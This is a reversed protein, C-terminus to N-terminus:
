ICYWSSSVGDKKQSKVVPFVLPLLLVQVNKQYCYVFHIELSGFKEFHIWDTLVWIVLGLIWIMWVPINCCVLGESQAFTMQSEPLVYGELSGFKAGFRMFETDLQTQYKRM